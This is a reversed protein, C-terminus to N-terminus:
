KRIMPQMKLYTLSRWIWEIPGYYYKKLWFRSFIIQLYAVAPSVNGLLNLGFGFFIFWGLLTQTLYSTLAMKGVVAMNNLIKQWSKKSFLFSIGAVYVMVMAGNGFDFLMSFVTNLWAPPQTKGNFIGSFQIGLFIVIIAGVIASSYILLKRFFSREAEFNEFLRNKSFWFGLLFFGFTIYIRGGLVQFTMKKPFAALNDAIFPLYQGKRILELYRKNGADDFISNWMAGVDAHSITFYIDQLRAPVNLILLTATILIIRNSVNTFLLLGYGIIAYISLIDGRWHLHHVFGIIGLIFLRWAFRKLFDGQNEASRTLMLGFSVGFLFSFFAFFKGTIFVGDIGSLIQTLLDSQYKAGVENPLSWGQHWGGYHALIIGLLAFGRLGDVLPIRTINNKM